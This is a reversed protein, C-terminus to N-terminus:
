KYFVRALKVALWYLHPIPSVVGMNQLERKLIRDALPADVVSRLYDHRRCAGKVCMWTIHFHKIVPLYDPALTCGDSKFSDPIKLKLFHEIKDEEIM